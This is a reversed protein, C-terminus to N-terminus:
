LLGLWFIGMVIIKKRTVIQLRGIVLLPLSLTVADLIVDLSAM